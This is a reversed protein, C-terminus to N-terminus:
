DATAGPQRPERVNRRDHPAILERGVLSWERNRAPVVPPVRGGGERRELEGADIAVFSCAHEGIKAASGSPELMTAPGSVDLDVVVVGMMRGLDCRREVRELVAAAQEDEELGM